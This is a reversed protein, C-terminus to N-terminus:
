ASHRGTEGPAPMKVSGFFALWSPMAFGPPTEALVDSDVIVRADTEHLHVWVLALCGGHLEELRCHRM